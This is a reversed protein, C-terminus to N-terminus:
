RKGLLTIYVIEFCRQSGIFGVHSIFPQIRLNLRLIDTKVSLCISAICPEFIRLLHLFFVM